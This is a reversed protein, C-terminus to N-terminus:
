KIIFHLSRVDTMENQIEFKTEKIVQIYERLNNLREQDKLYQNAAENM